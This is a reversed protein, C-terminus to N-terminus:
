KKSFVHISRDTDKDSHIKATLSDEWTFLVEPDTVVVVACKSRFSVREVV